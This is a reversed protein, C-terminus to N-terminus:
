ARSCYLIGENGSHLREFDVRFGAETLRRRCVDSVGAVLDNHWELVINRCRELAATTVSSLIDGEAGETDIKLMWVQGSIDALVDDLTVAPVTVKRGHTGPSDGYASSLITPVDVWLEIEGREGSVATQHLAVQANPRSASVNRQLTIFAQPNPEYAHIVLGPVKERAWLLTAAGINAGVDIVVSDAPAGHLSPMWRNVYFERFLLVPDDYDGHYWTTGNRFRYPPLTPRHRKRSYLIELGNSLWRLHEASERVDYKLHSIDRM